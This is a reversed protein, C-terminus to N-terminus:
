PPTPTCDRPSPSRSLTITTTTTGVPTDLQSVSSDMQTPIRMNPRNGCIRDLRFFFPCKKDLNKNIFQEDEECLGWGSSDQITIAEKYQRKMNALKDNIRKVTIHDDKGFVEDKIDRHWRSQKGKLEVPNKEM